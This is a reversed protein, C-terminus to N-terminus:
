NKFQIFLQNLLRDEVDGSHIYTRYKLEMRKHAALSLPENYLIAPMFFVHQGAKYWIYWPSPHRPNAPHDFITIGVKSREESGLNATMDMWNANEGYGTLNEKNAWGNSDRFVPDKISSAGRYGLGAYGGSISGGRKLTPACDFLLPSDQSTFNLSWDITYNGYQDPSSVLLVRNEKLITKKGEPAYELLINIKVSFDKKPKIDVKIIKSRGESVGRGHVEEWYNIKNISRWAFWLGRHHGHDAPREMTLDQGNVRLPHFYPKDQNKNFNLQWVIQGDKVLAFTSDSKRWSYENKLSTDLIGAKTDSICLSLLGFLYLIARIRM